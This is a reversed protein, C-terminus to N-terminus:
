DFHLSPQSSATLKKQRAASKKKLQTFLVIEAKASLRYCRGFSDHATQLLYGEALLQQLEQPEIRLRGILVIDPFYYFDKIEKNYAKLLLALMPANVPPQMHQKSLPHQSHLLLLFRAQLPNSRSYQM